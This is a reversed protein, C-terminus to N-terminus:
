SASEAATSEGPNAARPTLLVYGVVMALIVTSQDRVPTHLLPTAVLSFVVPTLPVAALRQRLPLGDRWEFIGEAGTQAIPGYRALAYTLLGVVAPFTGDAVIGPREPFHYQVGAWGVTFLVTALLPAGLFALSEPGGGFLASLSRRLPLRVLLLGAMAAAAGLITLVALISGCVSDSAINSPGLFSCSSPTAVSVLSNVISAPLSLPTWFVRTVILALVFVIVAALLGTPDRGLPDFERVRSAGQRVADPARETVVTAGHHVAGRVRSMAQTMGRDFASGDSTAHTIRADLAQMRAWAGKVWDPM